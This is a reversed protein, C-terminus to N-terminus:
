SKIKEMITHRQFSYTSNNEDLYEYMMLAKEYLKKKTENDKMAEFQEALQFLIDAFMNWNDNSLRKAQLKVILEDASLTILEDIPLDLHERLITNTIEVGEHIQGRSKLGMLDALLKELVQGLQDIQKKIFDEQQM